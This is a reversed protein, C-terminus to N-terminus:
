NSTLTHLSAGGDVCMAETAKQFENEGSEDDQDSSFGIFNGRNSIDCSWNMAPDTDGNRTFEGTRGAKSEGSIKGVRRERPFNWIDEKNFLVDADRIHYTRFQNVQALFLDEPYRIHGRLYSPMESLPKFLQPFIRAYTAIIPDEADALYFDTSGDYANIVVKVSNRIYNFGQPSPQSYPYRDTTTYADQIWVLRGGSLALYPDPDYDLFPAIRRVREDFTQAIEEWKAM